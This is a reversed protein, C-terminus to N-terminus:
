VARSRDAMNPGPLQFFIARKTKWNAAMVTMDHSVLVLCSVYHRSDPSLPSVPKTLEPNQEMWGFSSVQQAALM